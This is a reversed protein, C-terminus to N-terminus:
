RRQVLSVSDGQGRTSPGVGCNAVFRERTGPTRKKESTGPARQYGVSFGLCNKWVLVLIIRGTCAACPCVRLSRKQSTDILFESREFLISFTVLVAYTDCYFFHFLRCAAATCCCYRLPLVAVAVKIPCACVARTARENWVRAAYQLGNEPLTAVHVSISAQRKYM